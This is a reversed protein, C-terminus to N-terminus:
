SRARQTLCVCRGIRRHNKPPSAQSLCCSLGRDKGAGLFLSASKNAKAAPCAETKELVGTRLCATYAQLFIVPHTDIAIKIAFNPVGDPGPATHGKIRKCARRLEGSTVAPVIAGAQLPPLAPEDPVLPFIAAVICRVLTLSSPSNARPGRLRSM